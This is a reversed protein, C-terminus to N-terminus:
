AQMQWNKDPARMINGLLGTERIIKEVLQQLTLNPVSSLLEEVLKGANKLNEPITKSFLDKPSANIKEVAIQAATNKEAHEMSLKAIEIPAIGFWDAHLLEFLMEDGSFPM